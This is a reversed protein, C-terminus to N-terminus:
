RQSSVHLHNLHSIRMQPMQVVHSGRKRINIFPGFCEAIDPLQCVAQQFRMVDSANSPDDIRRNNIRNIDVAMGFQHFSKPSHMGGTTSNINISTSTNKVAAEIMAALHESVPFNSSPKTPDDNTFTIKGNLNQITRKM